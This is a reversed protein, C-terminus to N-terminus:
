IRSRYLHNNDHVYIIMYTPSISGREDVIKETLNGDKDLYYDTSSIAIPESELVFDPNERMLENLLIWDETTFSNDVDEVVGEEAFAPCTCVLLLMLSVLLKKFKKFM